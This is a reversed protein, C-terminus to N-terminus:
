CSPQIPLGTEAPSGTRQIRRYLHVILGHDVNSERHSLRRIDDILHHSDYNLGFEVVATLPLYDFASMRDSTIVPQKIISIDWHARKSKGLNCNTPYEKQVVCFQRGNLESYRNESPLANYLRMLFLAHLGHETNYCLYPRELFDFCFHILTKRTIQFVDHM